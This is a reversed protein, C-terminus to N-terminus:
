THPENPAAHAGPAPVPTGFGFKPTARGIAATTKFPDWAQFDAAAAAIFTVGINLLVHEWQSLNAPAHTALGTAVGTVTSLFLTVLAKLWKPVGWKTVAATALPIVFGIFLTILTSANM